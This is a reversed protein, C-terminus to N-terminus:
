ADQVLCAHPHESDVCEHEKVLEQSTVDHTPMARLMRENQLITYISSVFMGTAIAGFTEALTLHGDSWVFALVVLVNTTALIAHNMFCDRIRGLGLLVYYAPVCALSLLAGVLGIRFALPLSNRFDSGLWLRLLPSAVLILLGHLPLAFRLILAVCRRNIQRIRMGAEVTMTVGIRSVEPMLARIGAEALGRVQMSGTYAIEYIPISAVGAYRSLMLKNFPSLLMSVIAGGFVGSGFSLIRRYYGRRFNGQRLLRISVLRRLVLLCLLHILVYSLTSAILLSMIGYEAHLLAIAVILKAVRGATQIYSALDMRGLGSVAASMVQVVFVYVTLCGIYPLLQLVMTRNHGSLRFLDVIQSRFILTVVVVIGGSVSLISVAAALYREIAVVNGRGYEEAVLKMVARDIGLNGLCAFTLVTTLVLWVGYREYGLFHLYIPYGIALVAINLATCASGSIMNVRLQSTFLRPIM